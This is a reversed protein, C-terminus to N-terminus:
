TGGPFGPHSPLEGPIVDPKPQSLISRLDRRHEALAVVDPADWTTRGLAVAETIRAMTVDTKILAALVNGQYDAWIQTSAPGAPPGFSWAGSSQIASWGVQPQPSIGSVDVWVLSPHFMMTIDRDTAIREVVIGDHIRAYTQM